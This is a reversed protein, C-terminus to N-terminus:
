ASPTQVAGYRFRATLEHLEVAVRSLEAAAASTESAGGAAREAGSAVGDIIDTIDVGSRAVDSIRRSIDATTISQEEVAGAINGQLDNIRNIIEIVQEIAEVTGRTDTRIEAVRAVIEATAQGTAAALEKVENAVVAFGRGADGARAAEISATLALLNTQAAIAGIVSVVGGIEVGSANLRSVTESASEAVAVAERAVTAGEQASAAIERVAQSFQDAGVAVSEAATSVEAAAGSVLQAQAATGQADGAMSRSVSQIQASEGALGRANQDIAVLAASINDLASDLAQGMRGVEDDTDPAVRETLDGRAVAGLVEMTRALPVLVSRNVLFWFGATVGLLSFVVLTLAVVVGGIADSVAETSAATLAEYRAALVEFAALAPGDDVKVARDRESAGARPDEADVMSWAVEVGRGYAAATSRVARLAGVEEKSLDDLEGYADIAAVLELHNAAARRRHKESGRIVLNKFNHIFGGYGFHGRMEMLLAQRQAVDAQYTTWREGVAHVLLAAAGAALLGALVGGALKGRITLTERRGRERSVM